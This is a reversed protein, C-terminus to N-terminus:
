PPPCSIQSHNGLTSFDSYPYRQGGNCALWAGKTQDFKSVANPSWRVLTFDALPDYIGPGFKWAGLYAGPLSPPLSFEGREFTAPTLDPGAAQIAAFVQLLASYPVYFYAPSNPPYEAPTQGPRALQYAQYAESDRLPGWEGPIATSSLAHAWQTQSYNRGIPDGWYNAFWEPFYQQQDAAQTLFIPILPDCACLITTVGAAKMQAVMNVSQDEFTAVNIAYKERRAVRGGCAQVGQQVIDATHQYVANEPAIVGFVRTKRSLIPDNTFSAPLGVARRCVTAVVANGADDGTPAYTSYEFPRYQKFFSVPLYVAGFAAVGHAALDQQYFQSSYLPFTVDGFAGMDHATVADAETAGLGQGQDEALYDGQGQYTKLVVRRGYLEFQTNFYNIYTQLDAVYADSSVNAAGALANIASQQASNPKRYTVTITTGTVGHATAGGNNGHYAPVCLPAYKSWAFQRVGPGCRVGSDTTGSAGTAAPATIGAPVNPANGGLGSANAGSAGGGVAGGAGGGATGSAAAANPAGGAAQGATGASGGSVASGATGPLAQANTGGSGAGADAGSFRGQSSGPQVTPVFAVILALVALVVAVPVYRMATRAVYRRVIAELQAESIGPMGDM